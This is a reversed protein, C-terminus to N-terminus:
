QEALGIVPGLCYAGAHLQAEIAVAEGPALAVQRTIPAYTLERLQVTYVGPRLHNAGPLPFRGTREDIRAVLTDPRPSSAPGIAAAVTQRTRAASASSDRLLRLTLTAVSDGPARRSGANHREIWVAVGHEPFCQRATNRHCGAVAATCLFAGLAGRAMRRQRLLLLLANRSEHM